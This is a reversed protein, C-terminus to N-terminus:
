VSLQLKKVTVSNSAGSRSGSGCTRVSGEEWDSPATTVGGREGGRARGEVPSVRLFSVASSDGGRPTREAEAPLPRAGWGWTRARREVERGRGRMNLERFRVKEGLGHTQAKKTECKEPRQTGRPSELDRLSKQESDTQTGGAESDADRTERTEPGTGTESGRRRQTEGPHRKREGPSPRRGSSETSGRKQWGRPLERARECRWTGSV